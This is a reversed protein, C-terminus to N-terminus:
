GSYNKFWEVTRGVPVAILPPYYHILNTKQACVLLEAKEMIQAGINQLTAM